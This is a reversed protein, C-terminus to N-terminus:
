RRTDSAMSITTWRALRQSSWSDRYRLHKILPQRRECVAPVLHARRARCRACYIAGLRPSIRVGVWSASELPRWAHHVGHCCRSIGLQATRWGGAMLSGMVLGEAQRGLQDGRFRDARPRCFARLPVARHTGDFSRWPAAPPVAVGIRDWRWPWGRHWRRPDIGGQESGGGGSKVGSPARWRLFATLSRRSLSPLRCTLRSYMCREDCLALQQGAKILFATTTSSHQFYGHPKAMPTM